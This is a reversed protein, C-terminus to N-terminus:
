DNSFYAPLKASLCERLKRVMQYRRQRVNNATMRFLRAIDEDPRGNWKMILMKQDRPPLEAFCDRFAGKIQEGQVPQLPDDESGRGGYIDDPDGFQLWPKVDVDHLDSVKSHTITKLFAAFSHPNGGRDDYLGNWKLLRKCGDETLHIWIGQAYDMVKDRSTQQGVWRVIKRYWTEAFYDFAAPNGEQM